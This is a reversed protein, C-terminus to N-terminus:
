DNYAEIAIPPLLSATNKSRKPSYRVHHASKAIIYERRGPLGALAPLGAIILVIVVKRLGTAEIQCCAM